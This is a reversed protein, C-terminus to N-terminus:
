KIEYGHWGLYKEIVYTINENIEDKSMDYKNRYIRYIKWYSVNLVKTREFRNFIIYNDVHYDLCVHTENYKEKMRLVMDILFYNTRYKKINKIKEKIM